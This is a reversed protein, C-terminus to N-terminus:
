NMNINLNLDNSQSIKLSNNLSMNNASNNTKDMIDANEDDSKIYIVSYLRNLDIKVISGQYQDPM